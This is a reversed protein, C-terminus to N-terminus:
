QLGQQINSYNLRDFTLFTITYEMGSFCFLYLFHLYNLVTAKFTTNEVIAPKQLSTKQQKYNLTEPLMFYLLITEFVILSFSFMATTKFQNGVSNEDFKTLYAGLPPGITFALAFCIGVLALRKTKEEPKTIDSIMAITLQM